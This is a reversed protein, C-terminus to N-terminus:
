EVRWVRYGGSVKRAVFKRGYLRSANRAQAPFSPGVQKVLFSNGIEMEKWPYKQVAARGYQKPPPIDKDIKLM